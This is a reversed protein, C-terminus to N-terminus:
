YAKLRRTLNSRRSRLSCYGAMSCLQGPCVCINRDYNPLFAPAGLESWAVSCFALFPRHRCGFGLGLGTQMSNALPRWPRRARLGRRCCTAVRLRIRAASSSMKVAVIGGGPGRGRIQKRWGRNREDNHIPRVLTRVAIEQRINKLLVSATAAPRGSPPPRFFDRLLIGEENRTPGSTGPPTDARRRRFVNHLRVTAHIIPATGNLRM